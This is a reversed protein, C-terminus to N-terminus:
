WQSVDDMRRGGKLVATVKRIDHIDALPDGNVVLIDALKGTELSGVKEDVGCMCAAEITAAQLVKVPEIRFNVANELEFAFEGHQGDTGLTFRLGSHVAKDYANRITDRYKIFGKTLEPTGRNAVRRDNFYGNLTVTLWTGTRLMLELDTDNMYIGHEITDVGAEICHRLGVGGYCHAAVKKGVSHATDVAAQIEEKTMLSHMENREATNETGFLFTRFEGKSGTVFIKVQDAGADHINIRAAKRVEEVGDFPTGMIGHGYSSRIGKGSILLRPGPIIEKEVAEKIAVDIFDKEGLCRMTTVGSLLDARINRAARVTLILTDDKMAAAYNPMQGSLALHTHSDILGPLVTHDGFEMVEAEAPIGINEAESGVAAIREGEIVIAGRHIIKKGTFVQKAKIVRIMEHVEKRM